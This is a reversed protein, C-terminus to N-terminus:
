WLSAAGLRKAGKNAGYILVFAIISQFLGVATGYSFDAGLVGRRYIYTSIVDATEYTAGTYLLLIKEYGISLIDGLTLLFLISIVPAIGPLTIHLVQKWRNAGDLRASEYLSPDVGALAALYIISGWGIKQWVETSVYITRFWDSLMLFPIHEGGFAQVVQNVIGDSALLNVIMGCVVVTSLFHPLYSVSQVFRKFMGKRIENLLLALIIPAPFYFVLMYVNIVVTNRVLKWFYPDFIFQKFHHFGVWESRFVGKMVNYDKFAILLGFMPGYKFVIFYIFPLAFMLFLYRNDKIQKLIISGEWALQQVFAHSVAEEAGNSRIILPTEIPPCRADRRKIRWIGVKCPNDRSFGSEM